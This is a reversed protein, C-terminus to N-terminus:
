SLVLGSMTMETTKVCFSSRTTAYQFISYFWSTMQRFWINRGFVTKMEQWKELVYYLRALTAHIKADDRLLRSTVTCFLVPREIKETLLANELKRKSIENTFWFEWTVCTGYLTNLAYFGECLYDVLAVNVNKRLMQHWSSSPPFSDPMTLRIRVFM